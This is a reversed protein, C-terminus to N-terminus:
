SCWCPTNHIHDTKYHDIVFMTQQLCTHKSCDSVKYHLLM